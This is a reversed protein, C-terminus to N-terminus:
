SLDTEVKSIEQEIEEEYYEPELTNETDDSLNELDDQGLPDFWKQWVIKIEKSM